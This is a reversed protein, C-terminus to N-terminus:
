YKHGLVVKKLYLEQKEIDYSFIIRLKGIRIRSYKNLDYHLHKYREPNEAVEEIKKKVRKKVSGDLKKFDKSFEKTPLIEYSM